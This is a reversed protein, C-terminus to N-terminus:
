RQKMFEGELGHSIVKQVNFVINILQDIIKIIKKKQNKIIEYLYEFYENEKCIGSNNEFIDEILSGM